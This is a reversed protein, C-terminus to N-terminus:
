DAREAILDYERTDVIKVSVKDGVAEGRHRPVFIWPDIEPAEGLSRTKLTENGHEDGNIEDVLVDVRENVRSRNHLFANEQQILMLEELREEKVAEPIQDAFNESPTDEEQSYVFVGLREFAFERVFDRLKGFEKEDEGPFGVIFTTRLYIGPVRERLRDLLDRTKTETLRRGMHRLMKDSIHQLPMDLYNLVKDISSIADIMDDTLFAPYAYLIRIWEVGDVSAVTELLDTLRFRGYLDIGYSTTDQAILVVEKMGAAVLEEVEQKVDSLPKSRFGGRIGPISCFTCPNDCGESIKVYGYHSPTLRFRGVEKNCEQIQPSTRIVAQESSTADTATIGRVIGALNDYEGLGIIADVDPMERQIDSAYRQGLCGTVVVKRPSSSDLKWQCAELIAQVSEEKANDIFGCTNVVIVDAEDPSGVVIHGGSGLKGLITESDVLNKPCGLSVLHIRSPEQPHSVPQTTGRAQSQEMM